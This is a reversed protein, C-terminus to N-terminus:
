DGQQQVRSVKRQSEEGTDTRSQLKWWVEINEVSASSSCTKLYIKKGICIIKHSMKESMGNSAYGM